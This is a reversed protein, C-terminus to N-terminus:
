ISKNKESKFGTNEVKTVVQAMDLINKTYLANREPSTSFIHWMSVIKQTKNSRLQRLFAKKFNLLM